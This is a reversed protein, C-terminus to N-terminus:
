GSSADMLEKAIKFLKKQRRLQLPSPGKKISELFKRSDEENLTIEFM